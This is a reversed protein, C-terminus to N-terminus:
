KSHSCLVPRPFTHNHLLLGMEPSDPLNWLLVAWELFGPVAMLLHIQRRIWSIVPRATDWLETEDAKALAEPCLTAQGSM